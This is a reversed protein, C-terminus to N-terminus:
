EQQEDDNTTSSNPVKIAVAHGDYEKVLIASEETEITILPAPLSEDARAPSLQSALRTLSTFVGSDRELKGETLLALGNPDNCVVGGVESRDGSILSEVLPDSTPQQQHVM